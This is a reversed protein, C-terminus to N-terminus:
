KSMTDELSNRNGCMDESSFTTVSSLSQSQDWRVQQADGNGSVWTVKM